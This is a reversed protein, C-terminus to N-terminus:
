GGQPLRFGPGSKFDFRIDGALSTTGIKGGYKTGLVIDGLAQVLDPTAGNNYNSSNHIALYTEGGAAWTYGAALEGAIFRDFSTTPFYARQFYSLDLGIRLSGPRGAEASEFRGFGTPGNLAMGATPYFDPAAAPTTTQEPAPATAAAPAPAAGPAAPAPTAAPPVAGPVVADTHAAPTAAIPNARVAAPFVCALALLSAGLRRRLTMTQTTGTTM